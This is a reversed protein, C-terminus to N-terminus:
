NKIEYYGQSQCDDCVHGHVPKAHCSPCEYIIMKHHKVRFKNMIEKTVQKDLKEFDKNEM